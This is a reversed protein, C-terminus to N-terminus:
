ISPFAVSHGSAPSLSGANLAEGQGTTEPGRLKCLRKKWVVVWAPAPLESAESRGGSENAVSARSYGLM